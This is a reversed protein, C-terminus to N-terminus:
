PRRTAQISWGLICVHRGIVEDKFYIKGIQPYVKRSEPIDEGIYSLRFEVGFISFRM